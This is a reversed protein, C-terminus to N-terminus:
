CVTQGLAIEAKVTVSLLKSETRSNEWDQLVATQQKKDKATDAVPFCMRRGPVADFIFHGGSAFNVFIKESLYQKCKLPWYPSTGSYGFVSIIGRGGRFSFADGDANHRFCQSHSVKLLQKSM